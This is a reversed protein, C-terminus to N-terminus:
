ILLYISRIFSLFFLPFFSDHRIASHLTFAFSRHHASEFAKQKRLSSNLARHAEGTYMNLVYKFNDGDMNGKYISLDKAKAINKYDDTFVQFTVVKKRDSEASLRSMDVFHSEQLRNRPSASTLRM